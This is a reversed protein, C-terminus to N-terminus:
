SIGSVVFRDTWDIVANDFESLCHGFTNVGIELSEGTIHNQNGVFHYIYKVVPNKLEDLFLHIGVLKDGNFTAPTTNLTRLIEQEARATVEIM